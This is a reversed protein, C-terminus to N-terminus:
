KRNNSELLEEGVNTTRQERQQQQQQQKQSLPLHYYSTRTAACTSSRQVTMTPFELQALGSTSAHQNDPAGKLGIWTTMGSDSNGRRANIGSGATGTMFDKRSMPGAQTSRTSGHNSRSNIPPRSRECTSQSRSSSALGARMSIVDNASSNLRQQCITGGLADAAAGKLSVHSATQLAPTTFSAPATHSTPATRPATSVRIDIGAGMVDPVTKCDSSEGSVVTIGGVIDEEPQQEQEKIRVKRCKEQEKQTRGMKVTAEEEQDQKDNEYKSKKNELLEMQPEQRLEQEQEENREKPNPTKENVGAPSIPNTPTDDSAFSQNTARKVCPRVHNAATTFSLSLEKVIQQYHESIGSNLWYRQFCQM